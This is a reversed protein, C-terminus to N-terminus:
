DSTIQKYYWGKNEKLRRERRQPEQKTNEVGLARGQQIKTKVMNAKLYSM